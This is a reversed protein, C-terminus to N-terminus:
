PLTARVRYFVQNVGPAPPPPLLTVEECNVSLKVAQREIGTLPASTWDILNTSQDLRYYDDLSDASRIFRLQVPPNGGSVATAAFETVLTANPPVQPYPPQFTALHAAAAADLQPVFASLGSLGSFRETPDREIDFILPATSYSNEPDTKTLSRHYKVVGLRQGALNPTTGTLRHFFLQETEDPRLAACCLVGSRNTGDM